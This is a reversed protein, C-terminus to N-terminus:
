INPCCGCDPACERRGSGSVIADVPATLAAKVLNKLGGIFHRNDAVAPVRDYAPVGLEGAMERYEM